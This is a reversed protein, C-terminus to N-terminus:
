PTSETTTNEKGNQDHFGKKIFFSIILSLAGFLLITIIQSTHLLTAFFRGTEKEIGYFTLLLTIIFHYTGFGAQVPIILAVGAGVLMTMGALIGLSETEVMSFTIVYTMLFYVVWITITSLIFGAKNEVQKFSLFGDWLQRVFGSIKQYFKLGTIWRILRKRFLIILTASIFMFGGASYILISMDPVFELIQQFFAYLIDFELVMTILFLIILMILDFIRETIVTGFSLPIPINDNEKLVACRTVEGLRPLALNALYGIFVAIISRSTKLQYGFPNILLVWRYARAIYSTFSLAMSFLVWSYDVTYFKEFFDQWNVKQFVLYLLLVSISLAILYKAVDIPKVNSLRM